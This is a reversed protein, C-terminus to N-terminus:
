PPINEYGTADQQQPMPEYQTGEDGATTPIQPLQQGGTLYAVLARKQEEPTM